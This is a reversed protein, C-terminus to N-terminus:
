DYRNTKTRLTKRNPNSTEELVGRAHMSLTISKRSFFCQRKRQRCLQVYLTRTLKRYCVAYANLANILRVKDARCPRNSRFVKAEILRVSLRAISRTSCYYPVCTRFGVWCCTRGTVNLRWARGRGKGSWRVRFSECLVYM